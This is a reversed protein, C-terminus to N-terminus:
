VVASRSAARWRPSISWMLTRPRAVTAGSTVGSSALAVMAETVTRPANWALASTRSARASRVWQGLPVLHFEGGGVRQERRGRAEGFGAVQGLCGGGQLAHEVAVAQRRHRMELGLRTGVGWRRRLVVALELGSAEGARGAGAGVLEEDGTGAMMPRARQDDHQVAAGLRGVIKGGAGAHVHRRPQPSSRRRDRGSGAPSRRLFAPVPEILGVLLAVGALWRQDGADGALDHVVVGISGARTKTAPREAPPAAAAMM